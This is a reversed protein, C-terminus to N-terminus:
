AKMESWKEAQRADKEMDEKLWTIKDLWRSATHPEVKQIRNLSNQISEFIEKLLIQDANTDNM